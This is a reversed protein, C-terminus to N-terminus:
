SKLRDLKSYLKEIAVKRNQGLHCLRHCNPCLAATNSVTDPGGNALQKVHHAELFPEGDDKMFPAPSECLECIGAALQLVAAKVLPDRKYETRQNVVKEPHEVGRPTGTLSRSRLAAIKKELDANDSTPEYLSEDIHGLEVLIARLRIENKEGINRAPKYGKIWPLCFDSLVASLNQMRYEISKITRRKLPGAQLSQNVASKTFTTGEEESKLMWLYAKAAAKLEEISWLNRTKPKQSRPLQYRIELSAGAQSPPSVLIKDNENKEAIMVECCTPMRHGAQPYVGVRRHLKGSQIDVFSNGQDVEEAFWIELAERFANATIPQTLVPKCHQCQSLFVSFEEKSWSELAALEIACAKIYKKTWHSGKAPSGTIDSCTAKHLFLYNRNPPNNANVVYGGPHNALWELYDSDSNDFIQM